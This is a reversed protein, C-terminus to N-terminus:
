KPNKTIDDYTKGMVVEVNTVINIGYSDAETRATHRM